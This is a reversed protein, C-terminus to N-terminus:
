HPSIFGQPISQVPQIPRVLVNQVLGIRVQKFTNDLSSKDMDGLPTLAGTRSDFMQNANVPQVPTTGDPGVYALVVCGSRVKLLGEASIDFTTGKIGAVGNPIKIEYKSAASMKKVSGFIHGAKLDLQTGTVVDAGTQTETMKDLGLLTNEWVRVVNQEATPTYSLTDGPTPKNVPASSEGMLLDLRSNSATQIVSGPAIVDGVKLYQGARPGTAYRADGKLRVVKASLQTVGQAALTSVMALAVACVVLGRLLSRTEKM